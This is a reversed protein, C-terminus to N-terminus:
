QNKQTNNFLQMLFGCNQTLSYKSSCELIDHNEQKIDEVAPTLQLSDRLSGHELGAHKLIKM